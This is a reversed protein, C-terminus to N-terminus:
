QPSPVKFSPAPTRLDVGRYVFRSRYNGDPWKVVENWEAARRSHKSAHLLSIYSVRPEGSDACREVDRSLYVGGKFHDWVGHTMTWGADSVWGNHICKLLGQILSSDEISLSAWRKVFRSRGADNPTAQDSLSRASDIEASTPSAKDFFLQALRLYIDSIGETM